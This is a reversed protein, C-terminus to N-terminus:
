EKSPTSFSLRCIVVVLVVVLVVLVVVLAVVVVMEVKDLAVEVEQEQLLHEMLQVQQALAEQGQKVLHPLVEM